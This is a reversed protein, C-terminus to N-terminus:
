ALSSEQIEYERIEKTKSNVWVKAAKDQLSLEVIFLEGDLSVKLPMIRNEIGLRKLSAVALAMANEAESSAEPELIKRPEIEQKIVTKQASDALIKNPNTPASIKGVEANEESSEFKLKSLEKPLQIESSAPTEQIAAFNVVTLQATVGDILVTVMKANKINQFVLEYIPNYVIMRDNIEFVEKIIEGADPPRKVLRSRLFAIEQELSITVKKFDAVASEPNEADNLFPALHVKEPSFERLFRDLVFYSERDQHLHEEGAIRLTRPAKRSNSSDFKFEEGGVYIKGVPDDAKLEFFRKRCYDVSYKGGILILPEYYKNLSVLSIDFPSSKLFVFKSFLDTKKAEGLRRAADPDLRSKLIITKRDVAKQPLTETNEM